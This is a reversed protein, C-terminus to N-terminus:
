PKEKERKKLENWHDFCVAMDQYVKFAPKGCLIVDGNPLMRLAALCTKM